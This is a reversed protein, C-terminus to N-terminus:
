KGDCPLQFVQARRCVCEFVCARCCLREEFDFIECFPGGNPHSRPGCRGRNSETIPGRKTDAVAPHGCYHEEWSVFFSRPQRVSRTVVPRRDAPAGAANSQNWNHHPCNDITPKELLFHTKDGTVVVYESAGEGRACRVREVGPLLAVMEDYHDDLPLFHLTTALHREVECTLAQAAQAVEQLHGPLRGYDHPVKFESQNSRREKLLCSGGTSFLFLIPLITIVPKSEYFSPEEYYLVRCGHLSWRVESGEVYFGVESPALPPLKGAVAYYELHHFLENARRKLDAPSEWVLIKNPDAEGLFADLPDLFLILWKGNSIVVRRVVQQGGSSTSVVYDRVTELVRNWDGHLPEGKLGAAVVSAVKPRAEGPDKLEPLHIKPRKAEIILLPRDTDREFGFYDLRRM